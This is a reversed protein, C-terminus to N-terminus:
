RKWEGERIGNSIIVDIAKRANAGRDFGYIIPYRQSEIWKAIEAQAWAVGAEWGADFDGDSTVRANVKAIREKDDM